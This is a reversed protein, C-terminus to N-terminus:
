EGKVESKLKNLAQHQEKRFANRTTSTRYDYAKYLNVGIVEEEICELLKLQEQQILLTVWEVIGDAYEAAAEYYGADDAYDNPRPQKNLTDYIYDDIIERLEETSQKM